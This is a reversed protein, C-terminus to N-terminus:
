STGVHRWQGRVHGDIFDRSPHSLPDLIISMELVEPGLKIDGHFVPLL